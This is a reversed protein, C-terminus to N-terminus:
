STSAAATREAKVRADLARLYGEITAAMNMFRSMFRFVPNYVEGQETVKIESGGNVPKIDYIWRGGFPAGEAVIKRVLRHPREEEVTELTLVMHGGVHERWVAHGNRDELREVRQLNKWWAPQGAFDTVIAWLDEPALDTSLTRSVEHGLPMRSGILAMVGVALALVGIVGIVGIAWWM